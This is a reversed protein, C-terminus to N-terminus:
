TSMEVVLIIMIPTRDKMVEKRSLEDDEISMREAGKELDSVLDVMAKDLKPRIIAVDDFSRKESIPQINNNGNTLMLPSNGKNPGNAIVITKGKAQQGVRSPGKVSAVKEFRGWRASITHVDLKKVQVIKQGIAQLLCDSYYGEPLGLLIICLTSSDGVLIPKYSAKTFRLIQTQQGNSDVTSDDKDLTLDLRTRVKKTARDVGNNSGVMFEAM